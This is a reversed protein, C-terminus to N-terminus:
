PRFLVDASAPAQASREGAAEDPSLYLPALRANAEYVVNEAERLAGFEREVEAVVVLASRPRSVRGVRRARRRRWWCECAAGLGSVVLVAPVILAGWYSPMVFEGILM